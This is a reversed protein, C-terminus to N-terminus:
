LDIEVPADRAPIGTSRPELAIAGLLNDPLRERLKEGRLVLRSLKGLPREGGSRSGPPELRFAPPHAGVSGPEPRQPNDVGHAIVIPFEDAESLDGSIHGLPPELLVPQELALAPEASKNV